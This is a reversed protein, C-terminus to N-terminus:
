HYLGLACVGGGVEAVGCQSGERAGWLLTFHNVIEHM